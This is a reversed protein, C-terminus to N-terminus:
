DPNATNWWDLLEARVDPIYFSDLEEIQDMPIWEFIYKNEDTIRSLEPGGMQPEGEFDKILFYYDHRDESKNEFLLEQVEVPCSLEELCERVMAEKPSENEEVTGGPFTHYSLDPKVRKILLLKGDRIVVASVRTKNPIDPM